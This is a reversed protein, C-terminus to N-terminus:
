YQMLVHNEEPIYIGSYNDVLHHKYQLIANLEILWGISVFNNTHSESTCDHKAQPPCLIGIEKTRNNADGRWCGFWVYM